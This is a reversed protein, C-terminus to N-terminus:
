QGRPTRLADTCRARLSRESEFLRARVAYHVWAARRLARRRRLRSRLALWVASLVLLLFPGLVSVILIPNM